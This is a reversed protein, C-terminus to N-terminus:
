AFSQLGLEEELGGIDVQDLVSGPIGLHLLIKGLSVDPDMSFLSISMRQLMAKLLRAKDADGIFGVQDAQWLSSLAVALDTLEDSDVLTIGTRAAIKKAAASEKGFLVIRGRLDAPLALMFDELGARRALADAQVVIVGPGQAAEAFIALRDAASLGKQFGVAAPLDTNGPVAQSIKKNEKMHQSLQHIRRALDLLRQQEGTLPGKLAKVGKEFEDMAFPMESGALDYEMSKGDTDLFAIYKMHLYKVAPVLNGNKLEGRAIRRVEPAQVVYRQGTVALDEDQNTAGYEWGFDILNIKDSRRVWRKDEGQKWSIDNFPDVMNGSWEGIKFTGGLAGGRAFAWRHMMEHVAEVYGAFFLSVHQSDSWGGEISDKEVLIVKDGRIEAQLVKRLPPEEQLTFKRTGSFMKGPLTQFARGLVAEHKTLTLAKERKALDEVAVDETKGGDKKQRIYLAIKHKELGRVFARALERSNDFGERTFSFWPDVNHDFFIWNLLPDVRPRGAADLFKHHYDIPKRIEDAWTPVTTKAAAVKELTLRYEGREELLNKLSDISEFQYLGKELKKGGLGGLVSDAGLITVKKGGEKDGAIVLTEQEITKTNDDVQKHVLLSWFTVPYGARHLAAAQHVAKDFAGLQRKARLILVRDTRNLWPDKLWVSQKRQRVLEAGPTLLVESTLQVAEEPTRIAQFRLSDVLVDRMWDQLPTAADAKVQPAGWGAWIVKQTLLIHELVERDDRYGALRVGESYLRYFPDANEIAQWILQRSEKRSLDNLVSLREATLADAAKKAEEPSIGVKTFKGSGKEGLLIDVHILRIALQTKMIKGPLSDPKMADIREQLKKQLEPSPDAMYLDYTSSVGDLYVTHNNEQLGKVTLTASRISAIPKKDQNLLLRERVQIYGIPAPQVKTPSSNKDRALVVYIPISGETPPAKEGPALVSLDQSAPKGYRDYIAFNNALGFNFAGITDNTGPSVIRWGVGDASQVRGIFKGDPEVASFDWYFGQAPNDARILGIQFFTDSARFPIAKSKPDTKFLSDWPKGAEKPLVFEIDPKKDQAIAGTPINTLGNAGAWLLGAAMLYLFSKRTFGLSEELGASPTLSASSLGFVNRLNPETSGEITARLAAASPNPVEARSFTPTGSVIQCAILFGALLRPTLFVEKKKKLKVVM